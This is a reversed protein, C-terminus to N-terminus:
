HPDLADRGRPPLVHLDGESICTPIKMCFRKVDEADKMQMRLYKAAFERDACAKETFQPVRERGAPGSDELLAARCDTAFYDITYPM